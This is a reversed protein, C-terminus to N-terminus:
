RKPKQLESIVADAIEVSNRALIGENFSYYTRIGEIKEGFMCEKQSALLGQMAAKSFEARREDEQM